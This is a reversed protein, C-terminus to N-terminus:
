FFLMFPLLSVELNESAAATYDDQSSTIYTNDEDKELSSSSNRALANEVFSVIEPHTGRLHSIQLILSCYQPLEVLRDLFQELAKTGFLFLKSDTPKRLADLVSRLAIGLNLNNVLRHKILSGFIIAVIKLQKEPYRPFFKYEELLNQIVHEFVLRERKQSSEKFNTLMQIMVHITMQSFFMQSLYSGAEAEIDDAYGNSISSNSTDVNQFRPKVHMSDMNMRELDEAIRDSTIYEINARFVKLFTSSTKFYINDVISPPQFLEVSTDQAADLSIEKLFKLCEQVFIDKYDKLNDCLWKELCLYDGQSAFVALRISFSFPIQELFSSLIKQEYCIALLRMISNQDAEITGMLGRAVLKCNSHWLHLILSGMSNEVVVPLITSFVDRQLLNFATNVQSIGLLLLEPCHKLPDEIMERVYSAYGREACQCLVDLLDLSLWAHNGQIPSLEQCDCAEVYALKRISHEFTFIEVPASVAYRLFSLQGDINKWISGCVAHLPFPDQCARAYISMFFSFAQSNPIYFGEHDLYEMVIQWNIGPALQNVSDVLIDVNWSDPCSKDFAACSDIVACFISHSLQSDELGSYTRTVTSLIKSLTVENLPLFNSLVEKCHTSNITCRYGVERMIDAMSTESEMEVLLSYFDNENCNHFVDLNRPFRSDKADGRLLPALILPTREKPETLAVMQMFFDVYKTLGKSQYLFLIVNQIEELSDLSAPDGCLEHILGVCFDQGTTRIEVHESDALALGLAVKKSVSLQLESSFERLFNKSFIVSKFAEHCVTGFNPQDLLCSFVESFLDWMLKKRQMDEGMLNMHDLCTQLLLISGEAGYELTQCLERLVCDFNSGNLSQLFFRIHSSLLSSFPFM